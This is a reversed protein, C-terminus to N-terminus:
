SIPFLKFNNANDRLGIVPSTVHAAAQRSIGAHACAGASGPASLAGEDKGLKPSPESMVSLASRLM